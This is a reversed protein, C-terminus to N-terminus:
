WAKRVPVIGAVGPDVLFDGYSYVIEGGVITMVPHALIKRGEFPTIKAKSHFSAGRIASEERTIVTLDADYGQAIVGKGRVGLIRAPGSCCLRLYDIWSMRGEFVETLMIPVTTELGPIGSAADLFPLEKEKAQHPAHDSVICDIACTQTLANRLARTDEEERLPPLMKATGNEHDFDDNCLFLHHPTVEATLTEEARNDAIVKATTACSVHCVHLRGEIEAKASLFKKLARLESRCSHLNMFDETNSVRKGPTAADPHFLLPIKHKASIKMCDHIREKTYKTGKELPAHPFVKLGLLGPIMDRDFEAPNKPIGGYFGINVFKDVLACEIKGELDFSTLIPPVSNPMDVVTTVGGAAAAMTGTAFTEKEPQGLDRLHVHIDIAGPLVYMGSCDVVEKSAPEEVPAYVGQIKGSEIAISRVTEKGDIISIGNRLLLDAPM